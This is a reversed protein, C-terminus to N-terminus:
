ELQPPPTEPQLSGPDAQTCDLPPSASDPEADGCTDPPPTTETPPEATDGTDPDATDPADDDPADTAPDATAADSDPTPLQPAPTSVQPAPHEPPQPARPVRPKTTPRPTRRHRVTAEREFEGVNGAGDTARTILRYTGNPLTRADWVCIWRAPNPPDACIIGHQDPDDVSEWRLEVHAIGSVDDIACGDIGMGQDIKLPAAHAAKATAKTCARVEAPTAVVSDGAWAPACSGVLMLGLAALALLGCRTDRIAGVVYSYRCSVGFTSANTPHCPPYLRCTLIVAHM